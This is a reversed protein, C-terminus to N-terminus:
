FCICLEDPYTGNDAAEVNDGVHDLSRDLVALNHDLLPISKDM